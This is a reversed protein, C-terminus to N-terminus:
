FKEVKYELERLLVLVMMKALNFLGGREFLGGKLHTPFLYAGGGGLPMISSKRYSPTM